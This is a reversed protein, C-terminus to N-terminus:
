FTNITEEFYSQFYAVVFHNTIPVFITYAAYAAIVSILITSANSNNSLAGTSNDHLAEYLGAGYIGGIFTGFTSLIIFVISLM